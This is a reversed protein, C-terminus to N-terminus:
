DHDAYKAISRELESRLGTEAIVAVLHVRGPIIPLTRNVGLYRAIRTVYFWTEEVEHKM